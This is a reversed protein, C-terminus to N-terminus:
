RRLIFFFVRYKTLVFYLLVLNDNICTKLIFQLHLVVLCKARAAQALFLMKLKARWLFLKGMGAKSLVNTISQRNLTEM